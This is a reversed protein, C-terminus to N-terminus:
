DHRYILEIGRDCLLSFAVYDEHIDGIKTIKEKAYRKIFYTMFKDIMGGMNSCVYSYKYYKYLRTQM